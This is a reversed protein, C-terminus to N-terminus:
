ITTAPQREAMSKLLHDAERMVEASGIAEMCAAAACQAPTRACRLLALLLFEVPNRFNTNVM